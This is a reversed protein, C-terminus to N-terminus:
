SLCYVTIEPTHVVAAEATLADHIGGHIQCCLARAKSGEPHIHHDYFLVVEQLTVEALCRAKLLRVDWDWCLRRIPRWTRAAADQLSRAPEMYHETLSSKYQEFQEQTTCALDTRYQALWSTIRQQLTTASHTASQIRVAFGVINQLTHVQCGATYGLRQKTRLAHFCPKSAIRQLLDLLVSTCVDVPTGEGVQCLYFVASNSNKPNLNEPTHVLCPTHVASSTAERHVASVSAGDETNSCPHPRVTQSQLAQIESSLPLQRVRPRLVSTTEQSLGAPRLYDKVNLALGVANERSVNGYMLMHVKLPTALPGAASPRGVLAAGWNLVDEPLVRSLAPLLDDKVHWHPRQLLHDVHYEAHTLPNSHCWLQWAQRQEEQMILFRSNVNNGELLDLAMTKLVLAVLKMVISSYGHFHFVLGTDSASLSYSSATLQATYVEPELLDDLLRCYLKAVVLNHSSCYVEPTLLHLYVHVKPLGLSVDSKHWAQLGADEFVLEPAASLNLLHRDPHTSVGGPVASGQSESLEVASYASEQKPPVILQVDVPLTWNAAPLHLNLSLPQRSAANAMTHFLTSPPDPGGATGLITQLVQDLPQVGFRAGYWQERLPTTAPAHSTSSFYVNMNTPILHSLFSDLATGDYGQLLSTSLVEEPQFYHLRNAAEKALDLPEQRDQYRFRLNALEQIEEFIKLRECEKTSKVVHLADHVAVLLQELRWAELGKKTLQITLGWFMFGRGLKVEDRMGVTLSQVLGLRKLEYALSGRGEHGILHGVWRWPKSRVDRMSSYPLYWSVEIERLERQPLVLYLLGLQGPQVIRSFVDHPASGQNPLPSLSTDDGSHLRSHSHPGNDCCDFWGSWAPGLPPTKYQLGQVDLQVDRDARQAEAGAPEAEQCKEQGQDQAQGAKVTSGDCSHTVICPGQQEETDGANNCTYHLYSAKGNSCRVDRFSATAWEELIDLSQPAVVSVCLSGGTYQREWYHRLVYDLRWGRSAPVEKLTVCSGTSFKNLPSGLCSRRLQLLKRDDSNCNRSFEAHVNDVEAKISDELLLPCIFFQAARDLAGQLQTHHVKFHFSTHVMSTSANSSGGHKTLFTKYEQPEPYKSSGLHVAHELLHALGPIEEPDDFYGARVNMCSAAFVAEPDSVLLLRLGNQLNLSRYKRTDCFPKKIDVAVTKGYYCSVAPVKM